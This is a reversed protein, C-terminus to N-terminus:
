RRQEFEARAAALMALAEDREAATNWGAHERAAQATLDLWRIFYEADSASRIPADGLHVYVPSTSAFPHLDLVPMRPRDGRARLVLWSSRDLDVTIVTDARTAGAGVPITAIVSGNSVLELHEVPVSSRMTIRTTLRQRGAPLRLEDGPERWPGTGSRVTLGLLPANTVMTRGERLAALWRRHDLGQATRGGHVYVRALGPPGRMAAFNPFADTGAGAPLRFGCNLLRYWVESSALHDSFGM